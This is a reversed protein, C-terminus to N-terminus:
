PFVTITCKLFSKYQVPFLWSKTPVEELPTRGLYQCSPCLFFKPMNDQTFNLGFFTSRSVSLLFICGRVPGPLIGLTMYFFTYVETLNVACLCVHGNCCPTFVQSIVWITQAQLFTTRYGTGKTDVTPQPILSVRRNPKNGFTQYFRLSTIVFWQEHRSILQWSFHATTYWSSKRNVLKWKHSEAARHYHEVSLSLM